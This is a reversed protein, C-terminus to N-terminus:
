GSTNRTHITFQMKKVDTFETAKTRYHAGSWIMKRYNPNRRDRWTGLCKYIPAKKSDPPRHYESISDSINQVSIDEKTIYIDNDTTGERTDTWPLSIPFVNVPCHIGILSEYPGLSLFPLHISLFSVINPIMDQNKM